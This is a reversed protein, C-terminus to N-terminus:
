QLQLKQQERYLAVCCGSQPRGQASVGAHLYVCLCGYVRVSREGPCGARRGGGERTLLEDEREPPAARSGAPAQPGEGPCRAGGARGGARLRACSVAM